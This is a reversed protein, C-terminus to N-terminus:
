VCRSTYLLCSEIRQAASADAGLTSAHTAAVGALGLLPQKLDGLGVLALILALLFLVVAVILFALWTALGAAVM